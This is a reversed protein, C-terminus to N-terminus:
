GRNHKGVSGHNRNLHMASVGYEDFIGYFRHLNPLIRWAGRLRFLIDHEVEAVPLRQNAKGAYYFRSSALMEGVGRCM